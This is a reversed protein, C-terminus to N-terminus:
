VTLPLDTCSARAATVGDRRPICARSILLFMLIIAKTVQALRQGEPESLVEKISKSAM